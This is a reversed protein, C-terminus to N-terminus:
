QEDFAMVLAFSQLVGKQSPSVCRSHLLDQTNRHEPMIHDGVRALRQAVSDAKGVSPDRLPKHLNSIGGQVICALDHKGTHDQLHAHAPLVSLAASSAVLWQRAQRGFSTCLPRWLKCGDVQTSVSSSCERCTARTVTVTSLSAQLGSGSEGSSCKEFLVDTVTLTVNHSSIGGGWGTKLTVQSLISLVFAYTLNLCLM